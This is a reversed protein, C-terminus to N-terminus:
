NCPEHLDHFVKFTMSNVFKMEWAQFTMSNLLRDHHFTLAHIIDMTLTKKPLNTVASSLALVFYSISFCNLLAFSMCKLPFWLKHRSFQKLDFFVRFSPFNELTVALGLTMPFTMSNSSLLIRSNQFSLTVERIERHQFISNPVFIKVWWCKSLCTSSAKEMKEVWTESWTHSMDVLLVLQILIFLFGGVLGCYM